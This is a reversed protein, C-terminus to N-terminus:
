RQELLLGPLRTVFKVGRGIYSGIQFPLRPRDNFRGRGIITAEIPNPWRHRFGAIIGSPSRIYNAMPKLHRQAMSPKSSGWEKLVTPVLWGPLPEGKGAAPTNTIDAGLLQHSLRLGCTVWNSWVRKQGQCHDWNFNLPRAELMVAVDCMWIPRWAGERFMHICIIRLHDEACPVLVDIEGIRMLRGREYIEDFSGGGFKAFGCHIDVRGQMEPLAALSREALGFQNPRVCLDIDGCPRLGNEPYLQVVACGKVLIPEIGAARLVTIAEVIRRQQISTELNNWRYIQQLENAAKAYRLNCHRVRRWCLAAAGSKLILPAVEELELASFEFAPPVGRWSGRLMEAILSGSSNARYDVM